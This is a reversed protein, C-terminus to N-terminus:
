TKKLNFSKNSRKNYKKPELGENKLLDLKSPYITM